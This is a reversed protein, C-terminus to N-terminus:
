SLSVQGLSAIGQPSLLNGLSPSGFIQGLRSTDVPTVQRAPPAVIRAPGNYSTVTVTVSATSHKSTVVLRTATIEGSQGVTVSFDIAARTPVTVPLGQPATISVNERRYDYTTFPGSRTVTKQTFGSILDLEPHTMELSLGYFSPQGANMSLWRTGIITSLNPSTLYAHHHVLRADVEVASFLLPAYVRASLADTRFNINLDATVEYAQGTSIVVHLQASRPPYGHLALPDSNGAPSSDTAAIVVGTVTLALSVAALGFGAVKRSVAM